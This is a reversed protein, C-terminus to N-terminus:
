GRHHKAKTNNWLCSVTSNTHTSEALGAMVPFLCYPKHAPPLYSMTKHAQRVTSSCAFNRGVDLIKAACQRKCQIRWQYVRNAPNSDMRSSQFNAFKCSKNEKMIRVQKADFESLVSSQIAPIRKFLSNERVPLQFRLYNGCGAVSMYTYGPKGVSPAPDLSGCNQQAGPMERMQACFLIAEGQSFVVWHEARIFCVSTLQEGQPSYCELHIQAILYSMAYEWIAIRKNRITPLCINISLSEQLILCITGDLLLEFIRPPITQELSRQNGLVTSSVACSSKASTIRCEPLHM